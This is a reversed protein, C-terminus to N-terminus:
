RKVTDSSASSAKPTQKNREAELKANLRILEDKAKQETPVYAVIDQYIYIAEQIKGAKELAAAYEYGINIDEQLQTYANEYCAISKELNGKAEYAQALNEYAMGQIDGLGQMKVAKELTKIADDYKGAKNYAIGLTTFADMSKRDLKTAILAQEIADGYRGLAIYAKALAIRAKANKPDVKVAEVADMYAREVYSRPVNSRNGVVATRILLAFVVVIGIVLALILTRFLIRIASNM